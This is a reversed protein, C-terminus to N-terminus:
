RTFAIVSDRSLVIGMVWTITSCLVGILVLTASITKEHTALFPGIVLSAFLIKCLDLLMDAM